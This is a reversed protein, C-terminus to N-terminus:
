GHKTNGLAISPPLNVGVSTMDDPHNAMQGNHEYWLKVKHYAEHRSRAVINFTMSVVHDKDENSDCVILDQSCEPEGWVNGNDDQDYDTEDFMVMLDPKQNCVSSDVNSPVDLRTITGYIWNDSEFPIGHRAVCSGVVIETGYKDCM